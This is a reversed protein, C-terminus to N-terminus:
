MEEQESVFFEKIKTWDIKEGNWLKEPKTANIEDVEKQAEEITKYTYYALFENYTKEWKTGKNYYTPENNRYCIVTRKM